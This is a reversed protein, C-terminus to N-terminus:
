RGHSTKKTSDFCELQKPLVQLSLNEQFQQNPGPLGQESTILVAVPLFKHM